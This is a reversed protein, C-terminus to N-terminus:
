RTISRSAARGEPLTVAIVAALIVTMGALQLLSLQEGLVVWGTVAAIAPNVYGYTALRAPTTRRMLFVYATYALCSNLLALYGIALVNSTTLTLRSGEGVVLGVAGLVLAGGLMALALVVPMPTAVPTRRYYITGISWNLCAVIVVGQWPLTDLAYGDRPWLLLAVGLFGIALGIAVRRSIPDGRQGLAGLLPIWLSGSANLLAAQNSPIHQAALINLGASGAVQLFAMVAVHRWERGGAPWPLRRWRTVLLLVSGALLFRLAGALFPPTSLVMVKTVAFSTGWILYVAAFALSVLRAESFRTETPHPPATV